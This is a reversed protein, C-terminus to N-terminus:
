APPLASTAEEVEYFTPRVDSLLAKRAYEVSVAPAYGHLHALLGAKLCQFYKAEADHVAKLSSAIPALFGYSIWVGLFTGVLAGGILKGLVEPPETIAGMTKIVGLV